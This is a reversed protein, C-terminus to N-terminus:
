SLDYQERDNLFGDGTALFIAIRGECIYSMFPPQNRRDSSKGPIRFENQFRHPGRRLALPAFCVLGPRLGPNLCFKIFSPQFDEVFFGLSCRASLLSLRPNTINDSAMRGALHRRYTDGGDQH